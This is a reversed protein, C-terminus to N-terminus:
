RLAQTLAVVDAEHTETHKQSRRIDGLSVTGNSPDYQHPYHLRASDVTVDRDPGSSYLIFGGFERDFLDLFLDGFSENGSEKLLRLTWLSEYKYLSRSFLDAHRMFPDPLDFRTLYAVPTTIWPGLTVSYSQGREEHFDYFPPGQSSMRPYSKQDVAYAEVAVRLTNIDALARSVKARTQSELLNPIAVASLLAIIAVVVLLEALTFGETRARM